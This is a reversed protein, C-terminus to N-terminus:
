CFAGKDTLIGFELEFEVELELEVLKPEEGADDGGFLLKKGEESLVGDRESDGVTVDWELSETEEERLFDGGRRDELDLGM